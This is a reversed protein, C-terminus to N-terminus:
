EDDIREYRTVTPVRPKGQDDVEDRFARDFKRRQAGPVRHIKEALRPFRALIRGRFIWAVVVFPFTYGAYGVPPVFHGVSLWLFFGATAALARLGWRLITRRWRVFAIVLCLGLTAAVLFPIM